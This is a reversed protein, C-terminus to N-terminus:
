LTLKCGFITQELRKKDIKVRDYLKIQGTIPFASLMCGTSKKKRAESILIAVKDRVIIECCFSIKRKAQTARAMNDLRNAVKYDLYFVDGIFLKLIKVNSAELEVIFRKRQGFM